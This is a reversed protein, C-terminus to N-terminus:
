AARPRYGCFQPSIINLFTSVIDGYNVLVYFNYYTIVPVLTEIEVSASQKLQQIIM